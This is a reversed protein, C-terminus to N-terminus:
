SKMVLGIWRFVTNLLDRKESHYPRLMKVAEEYTYWGIDGIENNSGFLKPARGGATFVSLYYIHRYLVQNTGFFVERLPVVSEVVHHDSSKYGTEEEFERMACEINKEQYSRRGKPFGWEPTQWEARVHKIYYALGLVNAKGEKIQSFKQTSANFEEDHMRSRWVCDWLTDLSPSDRVLQIEEESMMKFLKTLGSPNDVDYRGRIFELLGLSHRRRVLLFRVRERFEKLSRMIDNNKQVISNVDTCDENRVRELFLRQDKPDDFRICIVGFSTIPDKCVRHVHGQKGCNSCHQSKSQHFYSFIDRGIM